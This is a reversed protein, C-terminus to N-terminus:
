SIRKSWFLEMEVVSLGTFGTPGSLKFDIGGALQLDNAIGEWSFGGQRLSDPPAAPFIV